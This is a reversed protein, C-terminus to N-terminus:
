VVQSLIRLHSWSLEACADASDSFAEYVQRMYKLNRESFGKGFDQTLRKSLNVIVSAGYEARSNTIEYIKKGINWYAKVMEGSLTAYARNRAANLIKRVEVYVNEDFITIDSKKTM